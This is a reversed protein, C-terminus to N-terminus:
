VFNKRLEQPILSLAGHKLIGERDRIGNVSKLVIRGYGKGYVNAFDYIAGLVVLLNRRILIGYRELAIRVQWNVNEEIARLWDSNFDGTRKFRSVPICLHDLEGRISEREDEYGELFAKIAGCNVHGLILLVPTKLHFVGYDVSGLSNEIQNGINRIVFVRNMVERSLVTPHVRSDSCTVLTVTPHQEEIHDEFFERGRDSVFTENDLLIEKVVEEAKRREM